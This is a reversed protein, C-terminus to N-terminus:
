RRQRLDAGDGLACPWRHRLHRAPADIGVAGLGLTMPRTRRVLEFVDGYQGKSLVAQAVTHAYRELVVVLARPVEPTGLEDVTLELVGTRDTGDIVPVWTRCRGPEDAPASLVTTTAFCRGAMTAEVLQQPREPSRTSPVPVLATEERNVLFLVVEAAGLAAEVEEVM